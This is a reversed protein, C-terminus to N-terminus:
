GEPDALVRRAIRFCEVGTPVGCYVAIQTLVSKLEEPSLGNRLAGRFHLEWEHMRNLAALMGLNLLSRQRRDLSADAWCTGWCYETLLEQFDRNFDDAKDLADQVYDAGLVDKRAALGAEFREKDM